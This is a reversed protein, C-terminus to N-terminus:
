SKNKLKLEDGVVDLIYKFSEFFSPFLKAKQPHEGYIDVFDPTKGLHIYNLELEKAMQADGFSDGIYLMPEVQHEVCLKSLLDKKTLHHKHTSEIAEFHDWLHWSSLIEELVWQQSHSVIFMPCVYRMKCLIKSAGLAPFGGWRRAKLKADARNKVIGLEAVEEAVLELSPDELNPIWLTGWFDFFLAKRM